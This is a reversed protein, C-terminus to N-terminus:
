AIMELFAGLRTEIQGKDAQSYDTEMGLYAVGKEETVYRKVQYAEINYTHCGQLIIELVGDIHYDDIMKGMDQLRQVNPSMVSCTIDLYKEALADYVPKSEDVKVLKERLGNCSDFCVIDAGLEEAKKIIKDRVGTNPCGTVLIRPRNSTTGKKNQEWNRLLKETRAEVDACRAELDFSFAASDLITGLEYGSIPAPVLKGLEMYRLMVDREHNKRKIAERIDEEAITINYFSELKEKFQIIEAKWSALATAGERSSPLQMVYTPKIEDLLEFMKRKGDCTTEGVVFDSFYFYPCTDSLAFGYSAKILPCLNRPLHAEAAPIPEDTFACLGIPIAKAAYVLEMPVFTCFAGVVRQGSDKLEKMRMFGSKRAEAYTEFNKPLDFTAM